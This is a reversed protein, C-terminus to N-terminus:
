AARKEGAEYDYKAPFLKYVGYGIADALHVMQIRKSERQHSKEYCQIKSPGSGDDKYQHKQVVELAHVCRPDIFLKSREMRARVATLRYEVYIRPVTLFRFKREARFWKIVDHDWKSEHPDQAVMAHDGGIIAACRKALTRVDGGEGDAGVLVEHVLHMSDDDYLKWIAAHAPPDISILWRAAEQVFAPPADYRDALVAATVDKLDHIPWTRILEDHFPHYIRGVREPWRAHIERDIMEADLFEQADDLFSHDIFPNGYSDLHYVSGKASAMVRDYHGRLEPKITATEIVIYDEAGESTSLQQNAAAEESIDQMEDRVSWAGGESRAADDHDASLLVVAAGNILTMRKDTKNKEAWWSAPALRTLARWVNLSQRYTPSLVTGALGAFLLLLVLIKPALTGTTKGSRRGGLILMVKHDWDEIAGISQEAVDVTRVRVPERGVWGM